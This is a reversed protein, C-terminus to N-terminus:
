VQTVGDYTKDSDCISKNGLDKKIIIAEYEQVSATYLYVAIYLYLVLFINPQPWFNPKQILLFVRVENM